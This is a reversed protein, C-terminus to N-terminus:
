VPFFHGSWCRCCLYWCCCLLMFFRFFFVFLRGLLSGMCCFRALLRVVVPWLSWPKTCSGLSSLHCLTFTSISGAPSSVRGGSRSCTPSVSRERGRRYRRPETGKRRRKLESFTFRYVLSTPRCTTKITHKKNKTESLQM